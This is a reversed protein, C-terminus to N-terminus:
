PWPRPPPPSYPPHRAPSGPILIHVHPHHLMRRTWTQLVAIFGPEGGLHRPNRCLERLGQASAKLLLDYLERPHRLCAPRLQAPVTVTLLYYPVPLLRAEQVASWRQQDTAGCQPCSRHNCSHFINHSRSCDPCHHRQGGRRPTRCSLVAEAARWHASPIPGEAQAVYRPWHERLLDAFKV